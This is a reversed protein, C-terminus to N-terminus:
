ALQDWLCWLGRKQNPIQINFDSSPGFMNPCNPHHLFTTLYLSTPSSQILEVGLVPFIFQGTHKSCFPWLYSDWQLLIQCDWWKQENIKTEHGSNESSQPKKSLVEVWCLALHNCGWFSVNSVLFGWLQLRFSMKWAWWQLDTKVQHSSRWTDVNLSLSNKICPSGASCPGGLHM